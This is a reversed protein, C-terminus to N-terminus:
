YIGSISSNRHGASAMYNFLYRRYNQDVMANLKMTANGLAKAQETTLPIQVGRTMTAKNLLNPHWVLTARQKNVWDNIRAKATLAWPTLVNAVWSNLDANLRKENGEYSFTGKMVRIVNPLLQSVTEAASELDVPVSTVGRFNAEMTENFGVTNPKGLTVIAKQDPEDGPPAPRWKTIEVGPKPVVQAYVQELNWDPVDSSGGWLHHRCKSCVYKRHKM